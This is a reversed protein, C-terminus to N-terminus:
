LSPLGLTLNAAGAVTACRGGSPCGGLLWALLAALTSRAVLWPVATRFRSADDRQQRRLHCLGLGLLRTGALATLQQAVGTWGAPGSQGLTAVDFVQFSRAAPGTHGIFPALGVLSDRM